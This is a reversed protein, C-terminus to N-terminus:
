SAHFVQYLYWLRPCRVFWIDQSCISSLGLVLSVALLAYLHPFVTGFPPLAAHSGVLLLTQWHLSHQCYTQRLHGWFVHKDIYSSYRVAANQVRHLRQFNTNSM